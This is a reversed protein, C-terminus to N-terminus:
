WPHYFGACIDHYNTPQLIHASRITPNVDINYLRENVPLKVGSRNTLLRKVKLDECNLLTVRISLAVLYVVRRRAAPVATQSSQPNTKFKVVSFLDLYSQNQHVPKSDWRNSSATELVFQHVSRDSVLFCPQLSRATAM